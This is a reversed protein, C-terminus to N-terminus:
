VLNFQREFTQRIEQEVNASIMSVLEPNNKILTTSDPNPTTM